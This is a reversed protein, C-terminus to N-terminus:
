IRTDVPWHADGGLEAPQSPGAATVSRPAQTFPQNWPQESLIPGPCRVACFLSSTSLFSLSPPFSYIVIVPMEFPCLLCIVSSAPGLDPLLQALFYLLVPDYGLLGISVCPHTFLSFPFLCPEWGSFNWIRYTAAGDPLPTHGKPPGCLWVATSLGNVTSVGVCVGALAGASAGCPTVSGQHPTLLM